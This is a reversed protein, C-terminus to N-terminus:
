RRLKDGLSYMLQGSREFLERPNSNTRKPVRHSAGADRTGKSRELLSLFDQPGSDQASLPTSMKKVQHQPGWCKSAKAAYYRGGSSAGTSSQRLLASPISSSLQAPDTSSFNAAGLSHRSPPQSPNTYSARGPLPNYAAITHSSSAPSAARSSSKGTSCPYGNGDYESTDARADSQGGSLRKMAGSTSEWSM